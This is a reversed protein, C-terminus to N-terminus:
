QPHVIILTLSSSSHSRLSHRRTGPDRLKLYLITWLSLPLHSSLLVFFQEAESRLRRRCNEHWFIYTARTQALNMLTNTVEEDLQVTQHTARGYKHIKKEFTM